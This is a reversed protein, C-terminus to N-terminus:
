LPSLIGNKLDQDRMNILRSYVKNYDLADLYIFGYVPQQRGIM